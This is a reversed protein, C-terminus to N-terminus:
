DISAGERPKASMPLGFIRDFYWNFALGYAVFFLVLGFELSLAMGAGIDLWWAVLPLLLVVLGAEFGIAHTIRRALSRGRQTQRKEWQEFLVNYAMNWLMAVVSTAIALSGSRGVGHRTTAMFALTVSIVAFFEFLIAHIVKRQTGQM